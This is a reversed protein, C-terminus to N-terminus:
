EERELVAGSIENSVLSPRKFHSESGRVAAGRLVELDVVERGVTTDPKGHVVGVVGDTPKSVATEL